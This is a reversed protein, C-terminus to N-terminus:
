ADHLEELWRVVGDLFLKDAGRAVTAHLAPYEFREYDVDCPIYDQGGNVMSFLLTHRFPSRRKLEANTVTMIEPKVGVFVVDNLRIAEVCIEQDADPPYGYWKVPPEPGGMPYSKQGPVSLRMQHHSLASLPEPAGADRVTEIVARGLRGGLEELIEYGKECLNVERFRGDGGVELYNAKGFPFQDGAAGMFFLAPVKLEREIVRCSAGCLDGTVYKKGDSLPANEMVCSKVACNFLVAIPEGGPNTFAVTFLTKDSPGTGGMGVWWGDVSEIDRNVMVDASGTGVSVYAEQMESLAQTVARGMAGKVADMHIAFRGDAQNSPVHPAALDHTVVVWVRDFSADAMRAIETRLGDILSFPRISPLELSVIVIREGADLVVARACIEDHVGWFGEQPFYEEPLDIVARGAGVCLTKGSM